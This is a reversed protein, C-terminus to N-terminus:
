LKFYLHKIVHYTTQCPCFTSNGLGATKFSISFGPNSSLDGSYLSRGAACEVVMGVRSKNVWLSKTKTYKISVYSLRGWSILFNAIQHRKNSSFNLQNRNFANSLSNLTFPLLLHLLLLLWFFVVDIFCSSVVVVAVIVVGGVWISLTLSLGHSHNFLWCPSWGVRWSQLQSGSVPDLSILRSQQNDVIIVHMCWYRPGRWTEDAPNKGCKARAGNQLTKRAM